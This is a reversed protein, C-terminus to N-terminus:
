DWETNKEYDVKINGDLPIPQAKEGTPEEPLCPRHFWYALSDIYDNFMNEKVVKKGSLMHLTKSDYGEVGLSWFSVKGAKELEKIERAVETIDEGYGDSIFFVWPKYPQTGTRRYFRLRENLMALAKRIAPTMVTGGAATLNVPDMYEVPVFNQVVRYSNNFEIIAVDLTNRLFSNKIVAERFYNLSDNIQLITPNDEPMRMSESSDVLFVIALHPDTPCIISPFDSEGFRITNNDKM